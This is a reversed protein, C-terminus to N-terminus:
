DASVSPLIFNNTNLDWLTETNGQYGLTVLKTDNISGIEQCAIFRDKFKKIVADSHEPRVSLIFGFSPFASLWRLMPVDAPIPLADLNIHAGVKSCELLM